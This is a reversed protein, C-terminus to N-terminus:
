KDPKERHGGFRFRTAEALDFTAQLNKWLRPWNDGIV